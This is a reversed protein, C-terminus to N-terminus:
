PHHTGEIDRTINPFEDASFGSSGGSFGSIAKLTRMFLAGLGKAKAAQKSALYRDAAIQDQLGHQEMEGADGKARKLAHASDLIASSLDDPM